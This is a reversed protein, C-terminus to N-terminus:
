KPAEPLPMWASVKPRVGEDTCWFPEKQELQNWALWGIRVPEIPDDTVILVSVGDDEPLREGVPIWTAGKALRQEADTVRKSTNIHMKMERELDRKAEALERELTRALNVTPGYHDFTRGENIELLLADTRPTPTHDTM